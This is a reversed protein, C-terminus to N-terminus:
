LHKKKYFFCGPDESSDIDEHVVGHLHHDGRDGFCTQFVPFVDDVDVQASREHGHM